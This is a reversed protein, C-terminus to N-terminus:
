SGLLAEMKRLARELREPPSSLHKGIEQVAKELLFCDLLIENETESESVISHGQIQRLYSSVFLGAGISGLSRGWKEYRDGDSTRQESLRDCIYLGTEQISRVLGAIDRLPSYKFRRERFPRDPDGEFGQIIFDKGSFLINRLELNGHIRIRQASIPKERLRHLRKLIAAREGLIAKAEASLAPGMPTRLMELGAFHRSFLSRISQYVGIQYQWEYPQPKFESADPESGLAIHMKAIREGMLDLFEHCPGGFAEKLAPPMAAFDLASGLRKQRPPDIWASGEKEISLMAKAFLDRLLEESNREAKVWSQLYAVTSAKESLPQWELLGIIKPVEKFGAWERLFLTIEPDPHTGDPIERFLNLVGFNSFALTATGRSEKISLTSETPAAAEAEPENLWVRFQGNRAAEEQPSRFFRAIAKAGSPIGAADCLYGPTGALTAKAIRVQAPVQAELPLFLVPLALWAAKGNPATNKALILRATDTPIGPLAFSDMPELKETRIGKAELWAPFARQWLDPHPSGQCIEELDRMPNLSPIFEPAVPLDPASLELLVSEYSGLMVEFPHKGITPFRNGSTMELTTYGEFDSLDLSSCQPHQSLNILVLINENEHRRLFALIRINDPALFRLSGLGFAKYRNRLAIRRRLWWLLSNPNHEQYEVNVTHYHYGSDVIVPLFLRQSDAKSFGANRDVSWQMPTRVGNRDGLFINDGMGIEDGYYLVPAGPLTLVLNHLLEIKRRNNEMLPALRRRIGLNIKARQDHAYVRVMFDREEDTVMELTLEDHNRLFIAWQCGEPLGPTQSLIDVIPFRDEMEVSMYLRPMLPFHFAMQCEDGSGFYAAADEPWQNAEALLMRNDYRSKVHASIKKLFAHTEPLNECSTGVREFLYPVADLRLGDVGMDLWFDLVEFLSEQVKPNEFNLDPQHSFFRHWYYAQAVPDWAWNSSEFDQFIIRADKYRDADDSWVYFDREMSGPAAMRARQFWPHQDSTHNLVL